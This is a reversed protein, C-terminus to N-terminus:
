TPDLTSVPSSISKPANLGLIHCRALAIEKNYVTFIIAWRTCVCCQIPGTGDADGFIPCQSM